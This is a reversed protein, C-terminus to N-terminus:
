SRGGVSPNADRTGGDKSASPLRGQAERSTQSCLGPSKIERWLEDWYGYGLLDLDIGSNYSFTDEIFDNMKELNQFTKNHM